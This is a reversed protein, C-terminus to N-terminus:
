TPPSRRHRRGDSQRYRYERELRPTDRSAVQCQERNKPQNGREIGGDCQHIAGDHPPEACRDQGTKRQAVANRRMKARHHHYRCQEGSGDREFLLDLAELDVIESRRFALQVKRQKRIPGVSRRFRERQRRAARHRPALADRSQVSNVARARRALTEEKQMTASYPALRLAAPHSPLALAALQVLQIPRSRPATSM